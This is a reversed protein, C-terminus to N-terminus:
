GFERYIRDRVEYDLQELSKVIKGPHNYIDELTLKDDGTLYKNYEEMLKRTKESPYFRKSYTDGDIASACFLKLHYMVAGDDDQEALSKVNEATEHDQIIDALVDVGIVSGEVATQGAKTLGSGLKEAFKDILMDSAVSKAEEGMDFGFMNGLLEDTESDIKQWADTGVEIQRVEIRRIGTSSYYTNNGSSYDGGTYEYIYTKTERDYKIKGAKYLSPVTLSAIMVMGRQIDEASLEGLASKGKMYADIIYALEAAGKKLRGATLSDGEAFYPTIMLTMEEETLEGRVVMEVLGMYIEKEGDTMETLTKNALNDMIAPLTKMMPEVSLKEIDKRWGANLDPVYVGNKYSDVVSYIADVVVKRLDKGATPLSYTSVAVSDYEDAKAKWEEYRNTYYNARLGANYAFRRYYEHLSPYLTYEQALRGYKDEEEEAEMKCVWYSDRLEVIENGDLVEGDGVSNKLMEYEAIDFSNAVSLKAILTRYDGVQQKLADFSSSKVNSDTFQSIAESIGMLTENDKELGQIAADCQARIAQKDLYDSKEM